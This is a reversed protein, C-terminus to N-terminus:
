LNAIKTKNRRLWALIVERHTYIVNDIDIPILTRMVVPVLKTVMEKVVTKLDELIETENQSM